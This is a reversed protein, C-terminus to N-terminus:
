VRFIISAGGFLKHKYPNCWGCMLFSSFILGGTCMGNSESLLHWGAHWEAEPFVVRCEYSFSFLLLWYHRSKIIFSTKLKDKEGGLSGSGFKSFQQDLAKSLFYVTVLWIFFFYSFVILGDKCLPLWLVFCQDSLEMLDWLPAVHHHEHCMYLLSDGSSAMWSQWNM